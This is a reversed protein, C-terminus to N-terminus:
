IILVLFSVFIKKTMSLLILSIGILGCINESIGVGAFIYLLQDINRNFESFIGIINIISFIFSILFLVM